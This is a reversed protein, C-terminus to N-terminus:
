LLIFHIMELAFFAPAIHAINVLRNAMLTFYFLLVPLPERPMWPWWGFSAADVM